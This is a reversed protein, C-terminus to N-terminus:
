SSHTFFTSFSLSQPGVPMKILRPLSYVRRNNALFYYLCQLQGISKGAPQVVHPLPVCLLGAFHKKGAGNRCTKYEASKQWINLCLNPKNTKKKAKNKHKKEDIEKGKTKRLKKTELIFSRAFPACLLRLFHSPWAGFFNCCSSAISGPLTKTKRLKVCMQGFLRGINAFRRSPTALHEFHLLTSGGAPNERGAHQGIEPHKSVRVV